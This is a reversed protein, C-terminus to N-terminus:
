CVYNEHVSARRYSICYTGSSFNKQQFKDYKFAVETVNQELNSCM